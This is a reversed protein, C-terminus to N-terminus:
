QDRNGSAQRELVLVNPDSRGPTHITLTLTEGNDSVNMEQTGVVKGEIKDKLAIKRENMREASSVTKVGSGLNTYDNGDFRINKTVGESSFIISLGDTQYPRVQVIYATDFQASTSV